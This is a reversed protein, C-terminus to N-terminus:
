QRGGRLLDAIAQMLLARALANPNGGTATAPNQAAVQQYFQAWQQAMESTVGAARIADIRSPLQKILETTRALNAQLGAVGQGGTTWQTV